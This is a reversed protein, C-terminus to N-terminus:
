LFIISGGARRQHQRRHRQQPHGLPAKAVRRGGGVRRHGLAAGSPQAVGGGEGEGNQRSRHHLM